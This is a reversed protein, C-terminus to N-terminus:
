FPERDKNQLHFLFEVKSYLDNVVTSSRKEFFSRDNLLTAFDFFSQNSSSCILLGSILEAGLNYVFYSQVNATNLMLRTAITFM